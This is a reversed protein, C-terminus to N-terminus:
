TGDGVEDIGPLFERKELIVNIRKGERDIDVVLTNGDGLLLAPHFFYSCYQEFTLPCLNKKNIAVIKDGIKIGADPASSDEYLYSIYLYQGEKQYGFGFGFSYLGAQPSYGPPVTVRIHKDAWNLTFISNKFLATGAKPKINKLFDITVVEPKWEGIKLAKTKITYAIGVKKGLAGGCVEGYRKIYSVGPDSKRLTEWQKMSGTLGGTYGSDVILTMGKHGAIAVKIVPIRQINPKFSIKYSNESNTELNRDDTIIMKQGPFDIQWIPALRILNMGVVGDAAYCKLEPIEVLDLIAAATNSFHLGGIEIDKIKVFELKRRLRAADSIGSKAKPKLGLEVAIESSIVNFSAGTDFIFRYSKNGNNIKVPIIFLGRRFECRVESKFNQKEFTGSLFLPGMKFITCGCIFLVTVLLTSLMSVSVRKNNFYRKINRSLM